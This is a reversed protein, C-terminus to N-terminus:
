ILLKLVHSVKHDGHALKEIMMEMTSTKGTGAAATIRVLRGPKSNGLTSVFDVIERQQDTPNLTIRSPSRLYRSAHLFLFRARGLIRPM